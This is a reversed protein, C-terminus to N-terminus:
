RHALPQIRLAFGDSSPQLAGIFLFAPLEGGDPGDVMRLLAFCAHKRRPMGPGPDSVYFEDVARASWTAEYSSAFEDVNKKLQSGAFDIAAPLLAAVAAGGLVPPLMMTSFGRGAPPPSPSPRPAAICSANVAAVQEPGLLGSPVIEATLPANFMRLTATEGKIFHSRAHPPYPLSDITSVCGGLVLALTTMLASPLRM